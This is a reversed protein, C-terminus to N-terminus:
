LQYTLEPIALRYNLPLMIAGLKQIAFFLVVYEIRNISLVAVRDGKSVGYKQTLLAAIRNISSYLDKYSLETGDEVSKLAINKPSYLAWRKIWDTEIHNLGEKM